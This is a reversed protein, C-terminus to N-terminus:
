AAFRVPVDMRVAAAGPASKAYVAVVRSAAADADHGAEALSRAELGLRRRLGEDGAMRGLAEVLDLRDGPEVLLGCRGHPLLEPLCGAASAVVPLGAAMAALIEPPHCPQGDGTRWPAVVFDAAAHLLAPAADSVLLQLGPVREAADRAVAVGAATGPADRVLAVPGPGLGLKARAEARAEPSAPAHERLDVGGPVVHVAGAGADALRGAQCACPVIADPVGRLAMRGLWGLPADPAVNWLHVVGAGRRTALLDGPLAAHLHVLDPKAQAHAQALVADVNARRLARVL